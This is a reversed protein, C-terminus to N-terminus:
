PWLHLKGITVVLPLCNVPRAQWMLLLKPPLASMRLRWIQEERAGDDQAFAFSRGSPKADCLSVLTVFGEIALNRAGSPIVLPYSCSSSRLQRLWNSWIFRVIRARKNGAVSSMEDLTAWVGSGFSCCSAARM